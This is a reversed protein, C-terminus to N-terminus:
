QLRFKYSTWLRDTYYASSVAINVSSIDKSYIHDLCSGQKHTPSNVHQQFCQSKLSSQIPGLVTNNLTDENMDGVILCQQNDVPLM